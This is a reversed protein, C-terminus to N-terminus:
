VNGFFNWQMFHSIRITSPFFGCCVAETFMLDMEISHLMRKFFIKIQDCGDEHILTLLYTM